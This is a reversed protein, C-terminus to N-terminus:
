IGINSATIAPAAVLEVVMFPAMPGSGDPDFWVVGVNSSNKTYFFCASSPLADNLNVTRDVFATSSLAGSALSTATVGFSNLDIWVMDDSAFGSVQDVAQRDLNAQVLFFNQKSNAVFLDVGLTGSPVFGNSEPAMIKRGVASTAPITLTEADGFADTFRLQVSLRQGAMADSITFTSATAGSIPVNNALWQYSLAGSTVSGTLNSLSVNDPDTIGVTVTLQDGVRPQYVPGSNSGSWANTQLDVSGSSPTGGDRVFNFVASNLSAPDKRNQVVATTTSSVRELTGQGDRWSVEFQIKSGVMAQAVTLTRDTAGAISQGDLLWRYSLTGLGDLDLLDTTVATLTQGEVASGSITPTGTPSDNVNEVTYVATVVEEASGGLDTYTARAYIFKGVLSQDLSLSGTASLEGAPDVRSASKSEFWKFTLGSLPVGDADNLSDRNVVLTQNQRVTQSSLSLAGPTNSTVSTSQPTKISETNGLADVFFVEAQLKKGLDAATVVYSSGSQSAIVDGDRYWRYRLDSSSVGSPNDPDAISTTGNVQITVGVKPSTTSLTISGTAADNANTIDVRVTQRSSAGKSDTAMVEFDLFKNSGMAEFNPSTRFTVQGTRADIAFPSALGGTISFSIADSELDIVQAVYVSTSTDVNEPASVRLGSTFRPATNVDKVTVAVALRATLGGPDTAAVDFSYSSKASRNVLGNVTVVGTLRDISLLQADAGSISYTLAQGTDPDSALTTYIVSGANTGNDIMAAAESTILPDENVDSVTVRVAREGGNGTADSALVVFSYSSKAEFNLNVGSKLRVVGTTPNISLLGVDGENAKLAFTIVGDTSDITDTATATYLGGQNEQVTSTSSSTVAPAVEDVNTVNLNFNLSLPTSGSLTADSVTLTVAFSTKAEFNLSTGAKLFLGTGIVEFSSADTGSLAASNRGLGDDTIVIDALKVRSSTNRNEPVSTVSNALALATPAANIGSVAVSVPLSRANGVADTALVTFTYSPKTASSLFGAKLTVAGTASNINLLSADGVSPMLSYSVSQATDPENFDTDVAIATYVLNENDLASASASSSFNPAVEDVNTVSLMYSATVPSSGAVTSDAVSVTVAYSAQNEFNLATGAKLYLVGSEVEFVAADAGTLTVTNTGLSDDTIVVDAVKRRTAVVTNEALSTTAGSLTVATPAENVNTVGLTVAKESANGAADTAVVTFSYSGKTEFNPNGTLTVAGTSTNISFAAV